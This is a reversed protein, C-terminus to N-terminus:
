NSIRKIQITGEAVTLQISVGGAGARARIKQPTIPINDRPELMGSTDEVSGAQLISADIDASFGAPFEFTLTGRAVRVDVNGRRWSRAPIRLNLKGTAITANLEGGTLVLNADSDAATLTIAGEVGSLNIAGRGVSIELDSAQPVRIRYDIRWPLGNLRKPFNKGARKMFTKDHTGTSLIRIRNTDEDIIFGNVTALQKLDDETEAQLEIDATIEVESRSWGEITVSGQPAGIVSITGGYAFRRSDHRTATRKLLPGPPPPEPKRKQAASPSSFFIAILLFQVIVACFVNRYHNM